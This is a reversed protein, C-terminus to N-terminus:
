NSWAATALFAGDTDCQSVWLKIPRGQTKASLIVSAITQYNASSSAVRFWTTTACSVPSSSVNVVAVIGNEAAIIDTINGYGTWGPAAEASNPSLAALSSAIIGYAIKKM